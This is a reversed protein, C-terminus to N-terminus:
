HPKEVILFYGIPFNRSTAESVKKGFKTRIFGLTFWQTVLAFPRGLKPLQLINKAFIDTMIEMAGGMPELQILKLESTEVFRRLAFETYRYYDHPKEHLWYYFPVNMIIKGEMSLVRTMEKWLKEPVPIHELVDSLIITDFESDNFPLNKTLDLEYDLHENKHVTNGWDVCINDTVFKRYAAYLPVKGCGLDLLKGKAHQKLNNDYFGAILDTVLRSGISVEKPDRSAILKGKKYIFKSSKWKEQNRM